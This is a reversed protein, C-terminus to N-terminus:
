GSRKKAGAHEAKEKRSAGTKTREKQGAVCHVQAHDAKLEDGVGKRELQSMKRNLEKSHKATVAFTGKNTVAHKSNALGASEPLTKYQRAPKHSTFKNKSLLKGSAVDDEVDSDCSALSESRTVPTTIAQENKVEKITSESRTATDTIAAVPRKDIQSPRSSTSSSNSYSETSYSGSSSSLRNLAQPSPPPTPIDDLDILLNSIQSERHLTSQPIPASPSTPRLLMAHGMAVHRQHKGKEEIYKNRFTSPDPFAREHQTEGLGDDDESGRALRQQMWNPERFNIASKEKWWLPMRPFGLERLKDRTPMEHKFKCNYSTYACEGTRIWHTCYVKKSQDPQTGSPRPARYHLRQADEPYISAFTGVLVVSQDPTAAKAIPAHGSTEEAAPPPVQAGSVKSAELVVNMPESRVCHHPALYRPKSSVGTQPSLCSSPNQIALITATHETEHSLKWNGDSIQRHTLQRPIDRVEIPLQDAPILPVIKTGRLLYYRCGEPLGPQQYHPVAM